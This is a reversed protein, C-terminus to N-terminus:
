KKWTAIVQRKVNYGEATVDFATPVHTEPAEFSVTRSEGPMLSFYGEDFYTPLIREGTKTDRLNLKIMLAVTKGPNTLRVQGTRYGNILAQTGKGELQITELKNMFDYKKETANSFWYFNESLRKGDAGNLTLRMFYAPAEIKENFQFWDTKRNAPLDLVTEDRHLVEGKPTLIELTAKARSHNDRTMNTMIIKKDDANFQIHVPECGKKAGYYAGYTEYDWSYTQWIMAPWAPHTMWLLIGTGDEWLKSNWAEFIARHSEYNLMQAKKSYDEVGTPKGFDKVITGYYEKQHGTHMEHYNWTDSIPWLEVEDMMGAMTEATPFSQTGVETSFGDACSKFYFAIDERYNWPGSTRLNLNRSNGHYHRTGDLQAVADGIRKDLGAPAYGENRPCWLAISPHNRYRRITDNVNVMFLDFDRPPMNYGQTSMWFDNWVLLGYEDALDYFVESTSQGVWNRIMNYNANKHLKFYPELRARGIRKMADDMGWNGGKCFIPVGNVKFRLYPNQSDAAPFLDATVGDHLTPLTLKSPKAEIRKVNNFLAQKHERFIATPNFDIVKVQEEGSPIAFEYSLERVGFRVDKSHVIRNADHLLELKLTYLNPEGYGNPWWLKPNQM